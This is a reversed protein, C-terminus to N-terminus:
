PTFAGEFCASRVLRGAKRIEQARTKGQGPKEGISNWIATV